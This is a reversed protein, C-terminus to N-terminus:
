SADDGEKGIRAANNRFTSPMPVSSGMAVRFYQDRGWHDDHRRNTNLHASGFESTSGQAFQAPDDRQVTGAGAWRPPSSCPPFSISRITM